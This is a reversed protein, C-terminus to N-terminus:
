MSIKEDEFAEIEELADLKGKAIYELSAGGGSSLKFNLSYGLKNVATVTDGGGIVVNQNYKMCEFVKETGVQFEEREFLGMTGNMFMTQAQKIYEDFKTVTRDGIDYIIDDDTIANISRYEVKENCEVKFDVPLVIKDKYLDILYRLEELIAEDETALSKGIKNGMAKLFSNAIGGGVLLYDCTSLMTKIIPIKDDVKAGGMVVVFPKKAEKTVINLNELESEILYGYVTPLYHAIGATSAHSRHASGFADFVFIDALKAWKGALELDNGSELKFPYDYIRTNEFLFINNDENLAEDEFSTVFTVKRDLLEELREKVPMLTNKAKDEESKVRGLHSLVFITCEKDLLYNITKLSKIIKSDDTVKGNDIPVNFDCRLVVKKGKVHIDEIFKM